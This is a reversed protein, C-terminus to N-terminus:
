TWTHLRVRRTRDAQRSLSRRRRLWACPGRMSGRGGARRGAGATRGLAPSRRHRGTPSCTATLGTPELQLGESSSVGTITPAEEPEHALHAYSAEDGPAIGIPESLGKLPRPVACSTRGAGSPTRRIPRSASTRQTGDCFPKNQSQGCRCLTVWNRQEYSTGDASTIRVGGRVWIPGSADQQPDEILVISPLHALEVPEGGALKDRALLEGSPCHAAQHVVTDRHEPDDTEAITNWIRGHGDCIRAFACLAPADPLELTSWRSRPGARHVARALRDRDTSTRDPM